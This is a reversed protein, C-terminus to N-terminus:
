ILFLILVATMQKQFSVLDMYLLRCNETARLADYLVHAYSPCVGVLSWPPRKRQFTKIICLGLTTYTNAWASVNHRIDPLKRLPIIKAKRAIVRVDCFVFYAFIFDQKM